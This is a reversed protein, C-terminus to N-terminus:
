GAVATFDARVTSTGTAGVVVVGHYTGPHAYTHQGFITYLSNVTTGTVNTGRVDGPTSTGDGWKITCGIGLSGDCMSLTSTAFGPAALTAVSGAVQGQANETLTAGVVDLHWPVQTSPYFNTGAALLRAGQDALRQLFDKYAPSTRTRLVEPSWAVEALALLRPFVMYDVNTMNAVTEGWMAGELGIVNKDTVGQVYTGPDWDYAAAVDCGRPCAWNMGLSPPVSTIGSVSYKQDLYTHNAPAMVVKMHKAVAERGTITGPGGGGAPSWYEAVSGVPPTTGPGAIDAWGMVTKHQTTVLGSETNVFQAYQAHSLISAPVEDGGLDYYPGPTLASIQSIIATMIAWTNTSSPCLASYGVDETYDWHPPKDSGCNIDHTHGNLRPNTSDNYESMIIANNHGPSDVEPVVTVFHAAADAVVAKYQAQTWFGGPDVLRGETGVAGRGGIATLRPFGNIAIRFGQDDSLHLHLVNIKYAAAQSILGEVEAPTKFHRAIDLLLGRYTYRPYDTITVVPMTWPGPMVHPSDVWVPLLQRLTQIGNYLGHATMAEIQAGATTTDLRYGEPQASSKLTGPNGIKLSIDGPSPTGSAVPLPYGTSPRLYAALDNGVALEDPSGTAAVIRSTPTLTFDGTGTTMSVPKPVVAPGTPPASVQATGSSATVAAVAAPVAAMVGLVVATWVATVGLRRRGSGPPTRSGGGMVPRHGLAARRPMPRVALVPLLRRWPRAARTPSHHTDDM